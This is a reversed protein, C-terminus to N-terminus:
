ENNRLVLDPIVLLAEDDTAAFADISEAHDLIMGLIAATSANGVRLWLVKPPPGYLFALQRFDSDKSAIVYDYERAHDWIERDAATDLGVAAVHQSGPFADGLRAILNRSLNQDLLLRM